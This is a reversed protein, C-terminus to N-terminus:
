GAVIVGGPQNKKTSDRQWGMSGDAAKWEYGAYRVESIGYAQANAVLWGAV